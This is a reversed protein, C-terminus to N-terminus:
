NVKLLATQRLIQLDYEANYIVIEYTSLLPLLSKWVQPFTPANRLMSKHIRHVAM